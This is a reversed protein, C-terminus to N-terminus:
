TSALYSIIIKVNSKFKFVIKSWNLLCVFSLHGNYKLVILGALDADTYHQFFVLLVHIFHLETLSSVKLSITIVPQLQDIRRKLTIVHFDSNFCSTFTM